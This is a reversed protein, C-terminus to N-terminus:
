KVTYNTKKKDINLVEHMHRLNRHSVKPHFNKPVLCPRVDYAVSSGDRQGDTVKIQFRENSLRNAQDYVITFKWGSCHKERVGFWGATFLGRDNVAERVPQQDNDCTAM